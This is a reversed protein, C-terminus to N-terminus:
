KKNCDKLFGPLKEKFTAFSGVIRAILMNMADLKNNIAQYKELLITQQKIRGTTAIHKKLMDKAELVKQDALRLCSDLSKLQEQTQTGVGTEYKGLENYIADKYAKYADVAGGILSTNSDKNQFHADLFAAFELTRWETFVPFNVVCKEYSYTSAAFSVCPLAGSILATIVIIALSKILKKKMAKQTFKLRM